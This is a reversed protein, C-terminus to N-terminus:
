SRLNLATLERYRVGNPFHEKLRVWQKAEPAYWMEYMVAPTPDHRAVIRLTKFTGAEVRVEEEGEVTWAIRRESTARGDAEETYRQRWTAGPALPWSFALRAPTNRREVREAARELSTALDSTRLFIERPGTRIVYHEVGAIRELRDVTWLYDGQGEASEWRFAWQDGVQWVPAAAGRLAHGVEPAATAVKPTAPAPRSAPASPPGPAPPAAPRAVAPAPRAPVESTRTASCGAAIWSCALACVVTGRVVASSVKM